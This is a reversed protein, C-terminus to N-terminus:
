KPEDSTSKTTWQEAINIVFQLIKQADGPTNNFVRKIGHKKAFNEIKSRRSRLFQQNQNDGRETHRQRLVHPAADLIILTAKTEQLFRFNFLRDGEIFIVKKGPKVDQKKIYNIADDIVTMSLRDTGEFTSGDFVGLMKYDGQEIGRVKGDKFEQFSGFFHERIRKFLTTKGSAPVGAIFIVKTNM